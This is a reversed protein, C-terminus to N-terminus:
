QDAGRPREASGFASAPAQDPSIAPEHYNHCEACDHRAPQIPRGTGALTEADPSHCQRCTDISPLMVQKTRGTWRLSQVPSGKEDAHPYTPDDPVELQAAEEHCRTCAVLRHAGHNFEARHLWRTPIQPDRM